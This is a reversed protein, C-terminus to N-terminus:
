DLAHSHGVPATCLFTRRLGVILQHLCVLVAVNVGEFLKHPSVADWQRAMERASVLVAVINVIRYLHGEEPDVFVPVIVHGLARELRPEVPYGSIRESVDAALGEHTHDREIHGDDQYRPIGRGPRELPQGFGLFALPLDLQECLCTFLQSRCQPLEIIEPM